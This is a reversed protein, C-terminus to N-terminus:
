RKEFVGGFEQGTGPDLDYAMIVHDVDGRLNTRFVFKALGYYHHAYERGPAEIKSIVFVDYQFHDLDLRVVDNVSVSLRDGADEVRLAGYGDDFFEGVYAALEHAPSTDERKVVLAEKYAASAAEAATLEITAPGEFREPRVNVMLSTATADVPVTLCVLLSVGCLVFLRSVGTRMVMRM